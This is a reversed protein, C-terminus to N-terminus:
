TNGRSMEREHIAESILAAEVALRMLDPLSRHKRAALAAYREREDPTLRVTVIQTRQRTESRM